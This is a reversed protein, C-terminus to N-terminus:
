GRDGSPPSEGEPTDEGSPRPTALVTAFAAVTHEAGTERTTVLFRMRPHAAIAAALEEAFRLRKDGDAIEDLGDVALLARGSLVALTLAHGVEAVEVGNLVGWRRLALEVLAGVSGTLAEGRLDRCSVFVPPLEEGESVCLTQVCWRVMTSKGSGPGGLLLAHGRTLLDGAAAVAGSGVGSRQALPIPAIWLEG